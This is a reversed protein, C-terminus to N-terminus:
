TAPEFDWSSRLLSLATHALSSSSAVVYSIRLTDPNMLLNEMDVQTVQSGDLHLATAGAETAMVLLPVIDHAVQGPPPEFLIDLGRGQHPVDVLAPLSPIGGVPWTRQSHTALREAWQAGIKHARPSQGVYAIAADEMTTRGSPGRVDRMADGILRRPRGCGRVWLMASQDDFVSVSALIRKGAPLDPNFATAAICWWCGIRSLNTTGDLPDLNIIIPSERRWGCRIGAKLSEEHEIVPPLFHGNSYSWLTYSFTEAAALDLSTSTRGNIMVKGIHGREQAMKVLCATQGAARLMACGLEVYVQEPRLQGGSV